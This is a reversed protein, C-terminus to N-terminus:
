SAKVVKWTGGFSVVNNGTAVGPGSDGDYTYLPLGGVTLQTPGNSTTTGLTGVGDPGTPTTVGTPLQAPPWVALCSRNCPVSVGNKTFTYLVQGQTNVLISGFSGVKQLKVTPTPGASTGSTAPQTTAPAPTTTSSSQGSGSSGCAAALLAALPLLGLALLRRPRPPRPHHHPLDPANLSPLATM